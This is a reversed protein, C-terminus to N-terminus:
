ILAQQIMPASTTRSCRRSAHGKSGAAAIVTQAPAVAAVAPAGSDCPLAPFLRHPAILHLVCLYSPLEQESEESGQNGAHQQGHDRQGDAGDSELRGVARPGKRQTAVHVHVIDIGAALIGAACDVGSTKTQGADARHAAVAYGVDTATQQRRRECQAHSRGLVTVIECRMEPEIGADGGVIANARVYPGADIW